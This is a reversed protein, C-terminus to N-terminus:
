RRLFEAVEFGVRRKAKEWFELEEMRKKEKEVDVVEEGASSKRHHDMNTRVVVARCDLLRVEVGPGIAAVAAAPLGANSGSSASAAQSQAVSETRPRFLPTGAGERNGSAAIAKGPSSDENSAPPVSISGVSGVGGISGDAATSKIVVSVDPGICGRWLTALWQWHALPSYSDVIPMSIASADVTTLQYHPVLAIAIPGDGHTAASISNRPTPASMSKSTSSQATSATSDFHVEKEKGKEKETGEMDTDKTMQSHAPQPSSGSVRQAISPIRTYPPSDPNEGLVWATRWGKNGPPTSISLSATKDMVMSKPSITSKGSTPPEDSDKDKSKKGPPNLDLQSPRRREPTKTQELDEDDEASADAMVVSKSMPMETDKNPSTAASAIPKTTIYRKMEESIKHWKGIISLCDAIALEKRGKGSGDDRLASFPDPGSFVRVSFKGDKVLQDALSNTMSWVSAADLGEVAVIAGRVERPPSAVSPAALHPSIQSLIKVKNLVPISMIMAELGSNQSGLRALSMSPNQNSPTTLPSLTMSPNRKHQPPPPRIPQLKPPMPPAQPYLVRPPPGMASRPAHPDHSIQRVYHADRTSYPYPVEQYVERTGVYGSDFRRRKLDPGEVQELMYRPRPDYRPDHRPQQIWMRDGHPQVGSRPPSVLVQNPRHGQHYTLAESPRKAPTTPYVAYPTTPPNM